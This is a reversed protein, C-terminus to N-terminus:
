PIRVSCEKMAGSSATTIEFAGGCKRVLICATAPAKAGSVIIEFRYSGKPIPVEGLEDYVSLSRASHGIILFEIDKSEYEGLNFRKREVQKLPFMRREVLRQQTLLVFRDRGNVSLYTGDSQKIRLSALLLLHRKTKNCITAKCYHAVDDSTFRLNTFCVQQRGICSRLANRLKEFGDTLVQMPRVM